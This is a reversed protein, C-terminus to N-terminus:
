IRAAFSWDGRGTEPLVGRWFGKEGYLFESNAPPFGFVILFLNQRPTTRAEGPRATPSTAV